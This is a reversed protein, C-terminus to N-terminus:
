SSEETSERERTAATTCGPSQKAMCGKIDQLFYPAREPWQEPPMGLFMDYCIFSNLTSKDLQVKSQSQPLTDRDAASRRPFQFLPLTIRMVPLINQLM